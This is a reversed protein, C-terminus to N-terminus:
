AVGAGLLAAAARLDLTEHGERFTAYVPALLRRGRDEAGRRRWLRALSTATRLELSRAGLQRALELAQQLSDEAATEDGAAALLAGRLRLLEPAYFRSRERRVIELAEAITALGDDLAGARRHVDALMALYHPEDMRAGTERAAHLGAQVEAAGAEADGQAALSWGRVIQGMAVRYAYGYLSADAITAEAAELAAEPELRCQHIIALQAQAPVVSHARSPDRALEVAHRARHLAQDPRGLFWLALAAWDHCSVGANDGLTAPFTSYEGADGSEQFLAVGDEAEELARAFSGQHFLNCAVLERWELPREHAGDPSLRAAADLTDGAVAFQGRVEYLTALALLLAVLPENDDLREALDRAHLLAEEAEPASWGGTAVQAQGLSSLLEVETRLREPGPPLATAERLATRLHRIGEAHATRAFSQHAALELFRVAPEPERGAVFHTAVESAPAGGAELASGIRRHLAVRREPSLRDYLVERHVDHIFGFREGGRSEILARRATLPPCRRAVEPEPRELAAALTTISFEGGIVSAAELLETEAPELRALREEISARLSDPCAM